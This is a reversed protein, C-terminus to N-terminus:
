NGSGIKEIVPELQKAVRAAFRDDSNEKRHADAYYKRILSIARPHGEVAADGLVAWGNMDDISGDLIAIAFVFGARARFDRPADDRTSLTEYWLKANKLAKTRETDSDPERAEGSFHLVCWLMSEAYGQQASLIYYIEAGQESKELWKGQQLQQALHFSAEANGLSSAEALNELAVAAFRDLTEWNQATYVFLELKEDAGGSEAHSLLRYYEEVPEVTTEEQEALVPAVALLAALVISLKRTM